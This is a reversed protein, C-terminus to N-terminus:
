QNGGGLSQVKSVPGFCLVVEFLLLAKAVPTLRTRSM